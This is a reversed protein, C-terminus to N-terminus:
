GTGFRKAATEAQAVDAWTDCDLGASGVEVRAVDLRALVSRMSAGALPGLATLATRLAAVDYSALLPQERGTLDVGIAGDRGVAATLLQAVVAHDVLPLDVALVVAYPSGVSPMAAALGPVPGGGPPQERCWEVPEQTPRIPGVVLRRGARPAAALVRDLLRTGAVMVEAKDAGGM